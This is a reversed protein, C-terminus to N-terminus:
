TPDSGAGKEVPCKPMTPVTGVVRASAAFSRSVKPGNPGAHVAAKPVVCQAAARRLQRREVRRLPDHQM